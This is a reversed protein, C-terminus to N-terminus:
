QCNNQVTQSTLDNICTNIDIVQNCYNNYQKVFFIM